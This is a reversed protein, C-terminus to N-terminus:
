WYISGAERASHIKNASGAPAVNWKFSYAELQSWRVYSQLNCWAYGHTGAIVSSSGKVSERSEIKLATLQTTFTTPHGSKKM